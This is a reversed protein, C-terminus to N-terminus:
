MAAHLHAGIMKHFFSDCRIYPAAPAPPRADVYSHNFVPNSNSITGSGYIHNTNPNSNNVTAAQVHDGAMSGQDTHDQVRRQQSFLAYEASM